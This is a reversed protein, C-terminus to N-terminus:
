FRSFRFAYDNLPVGDLEAEVRAHQVPVPTGITLPTGPCIGSSPKRGNEDPLSQLSMTFYQVPNIAFDAPSDDDSGDWSYKTVDPLTAVEDASPCTSDRSEMRAMLSPTILPSHCSVASNDWSNQLDIWCIGVGSVSFEGPQATIKRPNADHYLSLAFSIHIDVPTGRVSEFFASPVSVTVSTRPQGPWIEGFASQWHSTWHRGDSAQIKTLTGQEVAVYGPAVGSADLPFNLEVEKTRIRPEIGRKSTPIAVLMDLRAPPVQGTAVSPYARDVLRAYPTTVILIPVVVGVGAILLRSIRIQRRSYQLLLVVASLGILMVASANGAFDSAVPVESSPIISSVFAIGAVYLAIALVWLLTKVFNSAIASVAATPLIVVVVLILQIWLLGILYHVPPFGAAALLVLGTVFLPFSIFVGAFLAKAALLKQWEYPRTIWFQRDGVLAEGQIVRVILFCWSIPVLASIANSFVVPVDSLAGSVSWGYITKWLYAVLVVVCILIEIRLHRVDKRFIHLVQRV